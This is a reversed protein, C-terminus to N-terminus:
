SATSMGNMCAQMGGAVCAFLRLPSESSRVSPGALVLINRILSLTREPSSPISSLSNSRHAPRAARSARRAILASRGQPTQDHLRSPSTLSPRADLDPPDKASHTDDTRKDHMCVSRNAQSNPPPSSGLGRLPRKLHSQEKSAAEVSGQTARETYLFARVLRECQLRTQCM